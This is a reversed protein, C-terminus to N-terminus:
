SEPELQAVVVSVDDGNGPCIIRPLRESVYPNCSTCSSFNHALQALLYSLLVPDVRTFTGLCTRNAVSLNSDYASSVPCVLALIQSESVSDFLGDTGFVVTDNAELRFVDLHIPLATGSPTDMMITTHENQPDDEIGNLSSFILSHNRIILFGVSGARVTYLLTGDRALCAALVSASHVAEPPQIKAVADQLWGLLAHRPQWSAYQTAGKRATSALVQEILGDLINRVHYQAVYMRALDAESTEDIRAFAARVLGHGTSYRVRGCDALGIVGQRECVFVTDTSGSLLLAEGPLVTGREDAPRDGNVQYTGCRFALPQQQVVSVSQDKRLGNRLTVRVLGRLRRRRWPWYIAPRKECLGAGHVGESVGAVQSVFSLAPQLANRLLRKGSLSTEPAPRILAQSLDM